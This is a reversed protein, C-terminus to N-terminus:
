LKEVEKIILEAVDDANKLVIEGPSGSYVKRFSVSKHKILAHIFMTGVPKEATESGGPTLLGTNAIIIDAPMMKKLGIAMAETVEASEPTCKEVLEGSINLLQKKIDADYTVLGGMLIKGSDPVLAFEGCLIGGSASEVFALTLQKKILLRSCTEVSVSSM